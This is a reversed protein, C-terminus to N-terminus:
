GDFYFKKFLLASVTYVRTYTAFNVVLDQDFLLPAVNVRTMFLFTKQSTSATDIFCSALVGVRQAPGVDMHRSLLM